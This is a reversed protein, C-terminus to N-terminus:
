KCDEKILYMREEMENVFSVPDLLGFQVLRSPIDDPDIDGNVLREAMLSILEIESIQTNKPEIGFDYQEIQVGLDLLGSNLAQSINRHLTATVLEVPSDEEYTLDLVLRISKLTM